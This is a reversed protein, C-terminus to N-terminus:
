GRARMKRLIRTVNSVHMGTRCAIEAYTCKEKRLKEVEAYDYQARHQLNECVVGRDRLVERVTGESVDFIKAIHTRSKGEALMKLASDFDWTLKKIRTDIGAEHLRKRVVGRELGLWKAVHLLPFGAEYLEKILNEDVDFRHHLRMHDGESLVQLNELRNDTKIGNIHHVHEEPTLKRGLHKEMVKRHESINERSGPAVKVHRYFNAPQEVFYKGTQWVGKCPKSCFFLGSKSHSIRYPGVTFPKGCTHCHVKLAM